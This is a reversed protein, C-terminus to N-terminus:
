LLKPQDGRKDLIEKGKKLTEKESKFTLQEYAKEYPLWVAEETEGDHDKESGNQYEMLFFAVNKLVKQKKENYFFFNIQGIKEVVEANIGGEERVERVATEPGKEGEEIWGKPLQWRGARWSQDEASPQIILWLTQGNEKKFVVGGASYERVLKSNPMKLKFKGLARLLFQVEM